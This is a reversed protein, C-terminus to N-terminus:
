LPKRPLAALPSTNRKRESILYDDPSRSILQDRLEIAQDLSEVTALWVFEGSPSGVLVDYSSDPKRRDTSFM